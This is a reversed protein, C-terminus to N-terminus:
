ALAMGMGCLAATGVTFRLETLRRLLPVLMTGGGIGVTGSIYGIPGSLIPLLRHNAELWQVKRGYDYAIWANLGALALLVLTEPLHLTTWLGLGAGIMLGPLLLRLANFDIHGLRWHARSSFFGTCVIAVLSAFVYLGISDSEGPMLAYLLPVYILGGGLGALGALVGGLAGAVLGVAFGYLLLSFDFEIM